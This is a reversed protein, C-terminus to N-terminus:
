TPFRCRPLYCRRPLLWSPITNDLTHDKINGTNILTFCHITTHALLTNVLAHIAKNHRNTRLNNTYKNTCCSLVHLCTDIKHSAYTVHQPYPNRKYNGLYRRYRFKITQTIQTNTIWLADWLSCKGEGDLPRFSGDM